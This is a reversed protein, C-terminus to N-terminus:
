KVVVNASGDLTAVWLKTIPVDKQVVDTVLVEPPGVAISAPKNHGCGALFIVGLAGAFLTSIFISSKGMSFFRVQFRLYLDAGFQPWNV